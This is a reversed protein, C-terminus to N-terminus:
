LVAFMRSIARLHVKDEFVKVVTRHLEEGKLHQRGYVVGQSASIVKSVNVCAIPVVKGGKTIDNDDLVFATVVIHM